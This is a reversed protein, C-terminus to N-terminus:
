LGVLGVRQEAAILVIKYITGTDHNPRGYVHRETLNDVWQYDM